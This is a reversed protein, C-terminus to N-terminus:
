NLVRDEGKIGKDGDCDDNKADDNGNENENNFATKM